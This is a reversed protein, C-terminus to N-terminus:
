VPGNCTTNFWINWVMEGTTTVVEKSSEQHGLANPICIDIKALIGSDTCKTLDCTSDCGMFYHVYSPM